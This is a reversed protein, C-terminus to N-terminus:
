RKLATRHDRVNGKRPMTEGSAQEAMSYCAAEIRKDEWDPHKHHMESICSSIAEQREKKGAGRKLLDAATPM